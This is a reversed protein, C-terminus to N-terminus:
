IAGAANSITSNPLTKRGGKSPSGRGSPWLRQPRRAPTSPGNDLVLVLPRTRETTGYPEGLTELLTVFNTSRKTASPHVLLRCEVPDWAGLLARRRSQGLAPIRLDTGRLAWCRALYPHPLAESEDGFLLDIDGAKAQQRLLRLRVGSREVADAEQRGALTHRPRRWRYGDQVVSGVVLRGVGAGGRREIEDCLRPLTWHRDHAEDEALIEQALILARQGTTGPRGGSRARDRRVAVGGRAYLGRWERVTSINVGLSHAIDKWRTCSREPATRKAGGPRDRL